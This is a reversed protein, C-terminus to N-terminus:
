ASSSLVVSDKTLNKDATGAPITRILTDSSGNTGKLYWKVLSETTKDEGAYTIVPTIILPNVYDGTDPDQAAWDPSYSLNEQSYIQTNSSNAYPYVSYQGVDTLDVITITGYSTIPTSM